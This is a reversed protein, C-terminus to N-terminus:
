ARLEVFKKDDLDRMLTQGVKSKKTIKLDGKKGIKSSYLFHDDIYVEVDKDDNKLNTKFTISKSSESVSFKIAKKDLSYKIPKVDISIGLKNEIQEINSGQKGIIKGIDEEPVFIEAKNESLVRVNVKNTFKYLYESIQKEALKHLPSKSIEEQIPIVVTQEGYTYIEFEPTKTEFDTVVVVPRALDAETMGSPVKVCMELFLIKKIKGGKIFIVTDIVQPIVGLEIKGIFRQISDIPNTAHVIGIFGVGALRLDTFLEFDTKNRMEDYIAYDPRTLLLIDHIEEQDGHSISYQTINDNLQLDRPAEVTKVIKGKNAYFEALATAFTSKGNGPSGSILIGEAQTEIRELLKESLEYDKIQLKKVPKVATIEWGDSLPPRTIVIRYNGIQAITSYKREIEIFSDNRYETQDIIEASLEKIEEQTLNTQSLEIFRWNGPGGKKAIPLTNERLHVSMTTEDFFKDLKM